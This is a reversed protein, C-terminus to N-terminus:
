IRVGYTKIENILSSYKSEFDSPSFGVPEISWGKGYPLKNYLYDLATWPSRFTPSVVAVDIDSKAKANGKAYSGFIYMDTIPLNDAELIKKFEEVERIIKEPLERKVM